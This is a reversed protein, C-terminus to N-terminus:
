WDQPDYTITISVAKATGFDTMKEPPYEHMSRHLWDGLENHCMEHLSQRMNQHWEALADDLKEQGGEIKEREAGDMNELAHTNEDWDKDCSTIDFLDEQSWADFRMDMTGLNIPNLLISGDQGKVLSPTYMPDKIEDILHRVGDPLDRKYFVYYFPRSRDGSRDLGLVAVRDDDLLKRGDRPDRALAAANAAAAFNPLKRRPKTITKTAGIGHAGDQERAVSDASNVLKFKYGCAACRARRKGSGGPPDITV